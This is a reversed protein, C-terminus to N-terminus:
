KIGIPVVNLTEIVLPDLGEVQSTNVKGSPLGTISGFKIGKSVLELTVASGTRVAQRVVGTRIARLDRTIEDALM